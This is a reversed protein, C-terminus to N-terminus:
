YFKIGESNPVRLNSLEKIKGEKYKRVREKATKM